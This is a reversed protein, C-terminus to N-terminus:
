AMADSSCWQKMIYKKLEHLEADDRTHWPVAVAGFRWLQNEENKRIEWTMGKMGVGSSCNRYKISTKFGRNFPFTILYCM